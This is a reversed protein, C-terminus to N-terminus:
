EGFVGIFDTPDVNFPLNKIMGNKYFNEPSSNGFNKWPILKNDNSLFEISMKNNKLVNMPDINHTTFILQGESYYMFYEILKCLYVDNINSDMEDIFVIGGRSAAVFSDYLKILKKIGNSEFEESIKYDGYNMVLECEYYDRNERSEVEISILDKKFLKIFSCLGDVNDRYKQMDEKLVKKQNVGVHQLLLNLDVDLLEKADSNGALIDKARIYLRHKDDSQLFVHIELSFVLTTLVQILFPIISEYTKNLILSLVLSVLSRSNLLNTTASDLLKEDSHSLKCYTLKGDEVLFIQKYDNNNYNGNKVELSENKIEYIDNIDKGLTFSYRYVSIDKESKTLYTAEIYFKKTKKNILEDLIRQNNSDSLYNRGAIVNRLIEVASVIATKGAGNEGYIAKVKYEASDFNKDVVKRYFDMSITETINKIGSISLSLLYCNYGKM